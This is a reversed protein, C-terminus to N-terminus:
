YTGHFYLVMKDTRKPGIWLLRAGEGIEEVLVPLGSQKAWKEYTGRTTGLAYQLQPANFSKFVTQLASDSVM